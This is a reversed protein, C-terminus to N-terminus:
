IGNFIKKIVQVIVFVLGFSLSFLFAMKLRSVKKRELPFNSSDIIQIVPTEQSLTFKAMALNQTASAFITALMTKDRMTSEVAVTTGSRYLPNIDMTSSSTQLAAGSITKEKLLNAIRDVSVQLKDVTTKQRQTKINIYKEVARNVIRDCYIKALEENEMTTRVEIFSAKKDIKAINFQTKNIGRIIGQLLSDQLRSYNTSNNYVPFEVNGIKNNKEWGERLKYIEVYKEAVSNNGTSDYKSLLVERALSESKFYLLINEGSLVGASGSGGVDVGFQGALSALGGLSSGGSRGEEVVFTLKATYSNTADM